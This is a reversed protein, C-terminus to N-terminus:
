AAVTGCHLGVAAKHQLTFVQLLQQLLLIHSVAVARLTKDAEPGIAAWLAKFAPLDGKTHVQLTLIYFWYIRMGNLHSIARQM